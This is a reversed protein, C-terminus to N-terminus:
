GTQKSKAEVVTGYAGNGLIKSIQYNASVSDWINSLELKDM